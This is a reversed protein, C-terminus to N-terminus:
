RERTAQACVRGLGAWVVHPLNARRPEDHISPRIKPHVSRFVSRFLSNGTLQLSTMSTMVVCVSNCLVIWKAIKTRDGMAIDIDSHIAVTDVLRFKIIDEKMLEVDLKEFKDQMRALGM